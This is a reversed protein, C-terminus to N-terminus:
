TCGFLRGNDKIIKSSMILIPFDFLNLYLFIEDSLIMILVSFNFLNLQSAQLAVHQFLNEISFSFCAYFIFTYTCTHTYTDVYICVCM